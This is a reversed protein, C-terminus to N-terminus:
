KREPLVRMTTWTYQPIPDMLANSLGPFGILQPQDYYAEVVVAIEALTQYDEIEPAKGCAYANSAKQVEELTQYSVRTTTLPVRVQLTQTVQTAPCLPTVDYRTIVFEISDSPLNLGSLTDFVKQSVHEEWQADQYQPRISFRAVERTADVLKLHTNLAWGVEFVGILMIVLVPLFIATEVLSQGQGSQKM